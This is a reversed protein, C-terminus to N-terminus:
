TPPLQFFRSLEGTSLDEFELTSKRTLLNSQIWVLSLKMIEVRLVLEVLLRGWGFVM